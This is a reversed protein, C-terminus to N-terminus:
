LPLRASVQTSAGYGNKSNTEMNTYGVERVDDSDMLGLTNLGDDTRRKKTEIIVMDNNQQSGSIEAHNEYLNGQVHSASIDKNQIIMNGPNERQTVVVMNVPAFKPDLSGDDEEAQRYQNQHQSNPSSSSEGSHLWKAGIPKIHKKFPARMWARYPKVIENEPKEFLQGCFKETHGIIGCMFCFSPVNEYKFNAWFWEDGAMKIKMRRKLPKALNLKVRIRMFERWVGVFNSQCSQVFSGVYNEIGQLIKESMLGAKLDHVQVWLEIHNLEVSRPNHGEQLRSMVLARRNFSWPCGEMVRKVDLEHYFQFLYLNSDIEKMYVGRGPKWLVDLTQQLAEFDTRGETIFRGVICLKADFGQNQLNNALVESAEIEIGGEEEDELSIDNLAAVLENAKDM